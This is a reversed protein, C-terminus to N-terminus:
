KQEKYSSMIKKKKRSISVKHQDIHIKTKWIQQLLFPQTPVSRFLTMHLPLTFLTFLNINSLMFTFNYVVFALFDTAESWIQYFLFLNTRLSVWYQDITRCATDILNPPTHYDHLILPELQAESSNNNEQM